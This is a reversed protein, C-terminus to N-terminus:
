RRNYVAYPISCLTLLNGGAGIVFNLLTWVFAFLKIGFHKEFTTPFCPLHENPSESWCLYSLDYVDKLHNVDCILGSQNNVSANQM